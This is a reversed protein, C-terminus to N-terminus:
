WLVPLHSYIVKAITHTSYNNRCSKILKVSDIEIEFLAYFFTKLVSMEQAGSLLKWILYNYCVHKACVKDALSIVAM